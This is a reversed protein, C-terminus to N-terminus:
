HEHSVVTRQHCVKNSVIHTASKVGSEGNTHMHQVILSQYQDADGTSIHEEPHDDNGVHDAALLALTDDDFDSASSYEGDDKIVLVRKSSCDRMVHGFGKCRHCQIDRAQSSSAVSEAPPPTSKTASPAQTASNTAAAQPKSSDNSTSPAVRSPSPSPPASCGNNRQWSNTRGASFNTKASAHHGHVERKAKCAFHFLRTINAYDKYELIDQIEHNLGAVFRAM